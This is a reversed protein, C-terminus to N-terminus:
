AFGEFEKRVAADTEKRRDGIIANFFISSCSDAALYFYLLDNTQLVSELLLYWKINLCMNIYTPGIVCCDVSGLNQGLKYKGM